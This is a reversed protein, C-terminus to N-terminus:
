RGSDAELHELEYYVPINNALAFDREGTAGKSKQWGPLLLVADCRKVFSLDGELFVEGPVSIPWESMWITNTHPCIPAYGRKWLEKAWCWAKFINWAVGFYTRARYPGAVYVIKKM